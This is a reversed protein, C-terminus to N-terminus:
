QPRPAVASDRVVLDGEVIVRRPAGQYTGDLRSCMLEVVHQAVTEVPHSVTTLPVACYRAVPSDDHSVVSLDHPVRLGGRQVENVFASAAHDNVICMATPREDLALLRTAMAAGGEEYLERSSFFWDSRVAVNWEELARCFGVFRPEERKRAGPIYLGIDRHGLELLYRAAQYTNDDEDFVVQDYGSVEQDPYGYCVVTGGEAVYRELEQLTQSELGRLSCVIAQPKQRRVTSLLARQDVEEGGGYSGYSYIPVDYGWNALLRQISKIKQTEIGTDLNLSFLGITRSCRKKLHQAYYNGEYQLRSAAELVAERTASSVRGNGSLASSVTTKSLGTARAL